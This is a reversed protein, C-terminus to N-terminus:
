FWFYNKRAIPLAPLWSRLSTPNLYLCLFKSGPEVPLPFYDGFLTHPRVPDTSSSAETSKKNGNPTQATSNVADGASANPKAPSKQFRKCLEGVFWRVQMSFIFKGDDVQPVTQLASHYAYRHIRNPMTPPSAQIHPSGSLPQQMRERLYKLPM